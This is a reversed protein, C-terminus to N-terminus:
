GPLEAAVAADSQDAHVAEAIVRDTVGDLYSYLTESLQTYEPWLVEDVFRPSVRVMVTTHRQRYRRYPQLGHRRVLAVFLRRQFSDTMSFKYEVQKLYREQELRTRVREAAKHAAVREGATTAGRYLAQIRQLKAILEREDM